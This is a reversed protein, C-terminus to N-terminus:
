GSSSDPRTFQQFRVGHTRELPFRNDGAQECLLHVAFPRDAHESEEGVERLVISEVPHYNISEPQQPLGLLRAYRAWAATVDGVAIEIGRLGVVRNAHTIVAPDNAIRWERPTVDQILFPSFGGDLLVLKWRIVLGDDRRREGPIVEGVALGEARLRAVDAEIDDSRLAYGALGEGHQLLVGFDIVGSVPPEGTAALLELYTGDLFTILANQTARNAHTGGRVVTFGLARYDQIAADLNHVAIVVHDLHSPM